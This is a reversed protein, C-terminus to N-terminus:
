RRGWVKRVKIINDDTAVAPTGHRGGCNLVVHSGRVLITARGTVESNHPTLITVKDGIEIADILPREQVSVAIVEVRPKM